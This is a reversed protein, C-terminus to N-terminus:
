ETSILKQIKLIIEDFIETDINKLYALSDPDEIYIIEDVLTLELFGENDVEIFDKYCYLSYEIQKTKTLGICNLAIDFLGIDLHKEFHQRALAANKIFNYGSEDEVPCHIFANFFLVDIGKHYKKNYSAIKLYLLKGLENTFENIRTQSNKAM